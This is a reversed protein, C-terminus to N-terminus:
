GSNPIIQDKEYGPSTSKSPIVHSDMWYIARASNFRSETWYGSGLFLSTQSHKNNFAKALIKLICCWHKRLLGRGLQVAEWNFLIKTDAHHAQYWQESQESKWRRTM